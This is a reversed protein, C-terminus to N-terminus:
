LSLGLDEFFEPLRLCRIGERLCVEPIARVIQVTASGKENCIVTGHLHRALAIVWPDASAPKPRASRRGRKLEPYKADLATADAAIAVVTQPPAVVGHQRIWKQLDVSRQLLERDVESPCVLSGQSALAELRTWLTPFTKRRYEQELDILASTDIVYPPSGSM